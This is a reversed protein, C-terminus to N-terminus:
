SKILETWRFIVNLGKSEFYKKTDIDSTLSSFLYYDGGWAGLSKVEGEFDMFLSQKVPMKGILDGVMTEHQCILRHFTFQDRCLAFAESLASMQDIMGDTVKNNKLFSRVEPLTSKKIGSYVLYLKDAFPYDLTVPQAPQNKQYLIPGNAQACAIDFGSGNFILENLHFADVGAWQSLLSILTSSSGFGWQPDADLRTVFDTGPKPQFSSNLKRITNFVLSLTSAKDEDSTSVVKFDVPDLVCEFWVKEDYMAKWHLLGPLLGEMFTLQQGANLPLALAKAGHLVLYEGSLLLKGNAYLTSTATM